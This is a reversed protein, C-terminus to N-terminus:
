ELHSGKHWNSSKFADGCSECWNGVSKHLKKCIICPAGVGSKRVTETGYQSSVYNKRASLSQRLSARLASFEGLSSMLRNSAPSATTGGGSLSTPPPAEPPPPTDAATIGATKNLDKKEEGFLADAIHDEDDDEDDDKKGKALVSKVSKQIDSPLQTYLDVASIKGARYEDIYDTFKSM